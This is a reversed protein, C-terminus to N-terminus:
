ADPDYTALRKEIEPTPDADRVVAVLENWEEITSRALDDRVAVLQSVSQRAENLKDLKSERLKGDSDLIMDHCDDVVTAVSAAAKRPNAIWWKDGSVPDPWLHHEIVAPVYEEMKPSDGFEQGVLGYIHQSHCRDYRYRVMAAIMQRKDIRDRPKSASTVHEPNIRSDPRSAVVRVTDSELYGNIDADPDYDVPRIGAKAGAHAGDVIVSVPDDYKPYERMDISSIADAFVRLVDRPYTYADTTDTVHNLVEQTTDDISARPM